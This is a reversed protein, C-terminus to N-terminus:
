WIRFDFFKVFMEELVFLIEVSEGYDIVNLFLFLIVCKLVKM